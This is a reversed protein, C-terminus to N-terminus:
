EEPPPILLPSDSINPDKPSKSRYDVIMRATHYRDYFKTHVAKVVLMLNDLQGKLLEDIERMLSGVEKTKTKRSAIASRTAIFQNDLENRLAQLETIDAPLIGSSQLQSIHDNASEIIRDIVQITKLSSGTKLKSPTFSLKAKLVEDGNAIAFAKLAGAIGEVRAITALRHQNKEEKVGMTAAAQEAALIQLQHVKQELADVVGQLSGVASIEAPNTMCTKLVLKYMKLKNQAHKEM